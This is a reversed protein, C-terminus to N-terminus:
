LTLEEYLEVEANHCNLNPHKSLASSGITGRFFAQITIASFQASPKRRPSTLHSEELFDLVINKNCRPRAWFM